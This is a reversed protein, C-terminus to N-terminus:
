LFHLSLTLPQCSTQLFLIATFILSPLHLQNNLLKYTSGQKMKNQKGKTYKVKCKLDFDLRGNLITLIAYKSHHCSTVMVVGAM